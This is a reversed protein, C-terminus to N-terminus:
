QLDVSNFLIDLFIALSIISLGFFGAASAAKAVRIRQLSIGPLFKDFPIRHCGLAALAFVLSAVLCGILLLLSVIM